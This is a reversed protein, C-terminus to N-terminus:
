EDQPTSEENSDADSDTTDPSEAADEPTSSDEVGVGFERRLVFDPISALQESVGEAHELVFALEQELQDIRRAQQAIIM